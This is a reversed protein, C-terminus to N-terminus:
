SEAFTQNRPFLLNKPKSYQGAQGRYLRQLPWETLKGIMIAPRRDASPRTGVCLRGGLILLLDLASAPPTDLGSCKSREKFANFTRKERGGSWFNTMRERQCKMFHNKARVSVSLFPSLEM